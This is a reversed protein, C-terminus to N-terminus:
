LKVKITGVAQEINGCFHYTSRVSSQRSTENFLNKSCGSDGQM